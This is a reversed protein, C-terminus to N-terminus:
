EYAVWAPNYFLFTFSYNTLSIIIPRTLLSMCYYRYSCSYFFIRVLIYLHSTGFLMFVLHLMCVFATSSLMCFGKITVNLHRYIKYQRMWFGNKSKYVWASFRCMCLCNVVCDTSWLLVIMNPVAGILHCMDITFDM